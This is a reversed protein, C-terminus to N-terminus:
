GDRGSPAGLAELLTQEVIGDTPVAADVDGLLEDCRRLSRPVHDAFRHVDRAVSGGVPEDAVAHLEAQALDVGVLVPVEFEGDVSRCIGAM